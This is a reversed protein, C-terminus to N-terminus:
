LGHEAEDEESDSYPVLLIRKHVGSNNNTTANGPLSPDALSDSNSEDVTVPRDM